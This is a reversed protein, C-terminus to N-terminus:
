RIVTSTKPRPLLGERQMRLLEDHSIVWALHKGRGDNKKRCNVRGLRCWERVTFKAKGLINAIEGFSYWEKVARQRVLEGLMAEVRDLRVLIPETWDFRNDM